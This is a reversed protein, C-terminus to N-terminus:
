GKPHSAKLGQLQPPRLNGPASFTTMARGGACISSCIPLIQAGLFPQLSPDPGGRAPGCAISIIQLKPENIRGIIVDAFLSMWAAAEPSRPSVSLGDLSAPIDASPAICNRSTSSRFHQQHCARTHHLHPFRRHILFFEPTRGKLCM